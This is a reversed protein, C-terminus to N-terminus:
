KKNTMKYFSGQSKDKAGCKNGGCTMLLPLLCASLVRRQLAPAVPLEEHSAGQRESFLNGTQQNSHQALVQIFGPLNGLFVDQTVTLLCPSCPKGAGEMYASLLLIVGRLTLCADYTHPSWMVQCMVSFPLCIIMVCHLSGWLGNQRCTPVEANGAVM